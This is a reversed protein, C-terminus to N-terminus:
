QAQISLCNVLDDRREDLSAVVAYTNDTGAIDFCYDYETYGEAEIVLLTWNDGEVVESCMASNYDYWESYQDALIFIGTADDSDGTESLNFQSGDVNLKYDKDTELAVTIKDGNEIDFTVSLTKTCGVLALMCLLASCLLLKFRKM